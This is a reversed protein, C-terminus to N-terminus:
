YHHRLRRKSGCDGPFGWRGPRGGNDGLGGARCPFGDVVNGHFEDEERTKLEAPFTKIFSKPKVEQAAFTGVTM